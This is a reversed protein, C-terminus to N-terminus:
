HPHRDADAGHATSIPVRNDPNPDPRMPLKVALEASDVPGVIQVTTLTHEGKRNALVTSDLQASNLFAPFWSREVRGLCAISHLNRGVRIM